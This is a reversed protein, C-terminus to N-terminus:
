KENIEEIKNLNKSKELLLYLEAKLKIKKAHKRIFSNIILILIIPAIFLLVYYIPM